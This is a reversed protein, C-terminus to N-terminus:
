PNSKINKAWSNIGGTVNVGEIGYDQLIRIAKKSRGGSKCHVYLKRGLVLKKISEIAEGSEIDALPFSKAGSISNTDFEVKSRVDLLLINDSNNELIEKLETVNIEKALSDDNKASNGEISACFEGYDILKTITKKDKDPQIKLEKFQMDLGNFVLLRGSLTKGAGTIIKIIETSQILGIIGPLVGIVGGEDCSPILDIPPPEPLLDRYNPSNSNLNFVTVQGEFRAISGYVNPKDLILCADNILYRSPFNDTCDCVLDFPRIIDLANESTLLTKYTNVKCYPNIEQIREKASLVKPKGIWSNKHIIQRQLNSEEVIDFDVIGLHGVGAAALYLLVPSGLGGSGVCLVSSAKLKKQGSIGIEPLSLHRAYRALENPSLDVGRHDHTQM